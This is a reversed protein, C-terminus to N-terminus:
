IDFRDMKALNNLINTATNKLSDDKIKTIQELWKNYDDKYIKAYRYKKYLKMYKIADEFLENLLLTEILNYLYGKNQGSYKYAKLAYDKAIQYNHEGSYICALLTCAGIHKPKVRLIHELKNKFKGNDKSNRDYQNYIESYESEAKTEEYFKKVERSEILISDYKKNVEDVQLQMTQKQLETEKIIKDMKQQHINSEAIHENIIGIQKDFKEKQKEMKDILKNIEDNKDQYLKMFFLPAVFGILALLITLGSLWRNIMNAQTEYYKILFDKYESDSVNKISKLANSKIQIKYTSKDDTKFELNKLVSEIHTLNKHQIHSLSTFINSLTCLGLLFFLLLLLGVIVTISISDIIIIKKRLIKM